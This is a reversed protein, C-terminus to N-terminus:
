HHAICDPARRSFDRADNAAAAFKGSGSMRRLRACEADRFRSIEVATLHDDLHSALEIIHIYFNLLAECALGKHAIHPSRHLEHISNQSPLAAVAHQLLACDLLLAM